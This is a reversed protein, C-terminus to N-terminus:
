TNISDNLDVYRLKIYYVVPSDPLTFKHIDEAANNGDKIWEEVTQDITAHILTQDLDVILSLKRGELLRRSTEKELREAENLSVTLGIVNHAMSITARQAYEIGNHDRTTIDAGCLACLGHLQISHSCPEIVEAV